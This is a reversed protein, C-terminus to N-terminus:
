IEINAEVPGDLRIHVSNKKFYLLMKLLQVFNYVLRINM